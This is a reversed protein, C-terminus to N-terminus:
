KYARYADAGLPRASNHEKFIKWGDPGCRWLISTRSVLHAVDGKNPTVEFAFEMVSHSYSPGAAVVNPGETIKHHVSKFNPVLAHWITGYDQATARVKLAPDFDDFLNLDTRAFDYYKGLDQKFNFAPDGADREWGVMLWERHLEAVSNTGTTPCNTSPEQSFSPASHIVAALALAAKFM